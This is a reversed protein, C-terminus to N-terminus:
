EECLELFNQLIVRGNAGSMEPHFQVGFINKEKHKMAENPCTNSQALLDFDKPLTICESHEEKLLAHNKAGSFLVDPKVIEIPLRKSVMDIISIEADYLLGIVQHGFCIGLVPIGITKIFEFIDLYKQKDVSTLLIPAGSIIIGSFRQLDENKVDKVNITDSTYGLDELSGQLQNLFSTGCDIIGIM